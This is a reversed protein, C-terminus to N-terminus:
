SSDNSPPSLHLATIQQWSGPDLTPILKKGGVSKAPNGQVLQLAQGDDNSNHPPTKKDSVVKALKPILKKGGVSEAPNGQVPQLAQSNDNSTHPLLKKNGVIEAFHPPLKENGVSEAPFGQVPQLAQGNDNSILPPLKKDGVAEAFHPILKKGSVSKVHTATERLPQVNHGNDNPCIATKIRPGYKSQALKDRNYLNTTSTSTGQGGYLLDPPLPRARRENKLSTPDSKDESEVETETVSVL